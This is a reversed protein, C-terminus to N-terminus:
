VKGMGEYDTPGYPLFLEALLGKKRKPNCGMDRCLQDNYWTHILGISSRRYYGHSYRKMYTDWEKINEEMVRISPLRFGGDLFYALWRARMESTYMNSLSESYGIIAMRPIRPHICERYLPVTSDLSGAVMNQLWPSTFIDRLKQDGKFGTAFIVLDAKIPAPDGEVIIGEKYFEFTKSKKFIIKGEEVMDYFKEPLLAFLSSTMAQFFSHDPVLGYKVIPLIRKYYSEALKSIIWRLPSLLTALLSLIFGEGPKHFLLESFRNFYYYDFPVGWASFDPINWRKTRVIMTCPNENGNIAACEAAIDVASKLFGVVVVRKGKVLDAAAAGGMNAYDMSHIADGAFAAPGKKEPFTPINPLGSFRGVCLVLFDMVHMETTGDERQVTVHWVGGGGSGDGATFADGSSGWLEWARMEEEGAGVFELAVVREGFRVHRLIDFRRAYGELYEMVQTHHPAGAVSEPWPFDSFRYLPPPTQLRTSSVPSAWVGGISRGAEFIVPRLGKELLYKCTVLGSVGAGVVCIRKEAM